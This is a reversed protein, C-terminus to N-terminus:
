TPTECAIDDHIIGMITEPEGFVAFHGGTIVAHRIPGSTHEAWGQMQEAPAWADDRATVLTLPFDVRLATQRCFERRIRYDDRFNRLILRTLASGTLLEAPTGGDAIIKALLEDDTLAAAEDVPVHKAPPLGASLVARLPARGVTREVEAAVALSVLTGFSHGFTAWRPVPGGATRLDVVINDTLSDVLAPFDVAVSERRRMGRGPPDVGRVDLLPEGLAAWPRYVSSTAGAHPFCYLRVPTLPM